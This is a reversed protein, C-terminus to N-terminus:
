KGKRDKELKAAIEGAIRNMDDPTSGKPKVYMSWVVDRTKRDVLFIAGKGRSAPSIPPSSNMNDKSDKSDKDDKEESKTPKQGYLDDLREEFAAGIADTLVVEAKRPDTVVQMVSGTTLKIALFQDLGSSMPLVYVTKYDALGAGCALAAAATALCLLKAVVSELKM